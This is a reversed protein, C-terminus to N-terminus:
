ATVATLLHGCQVCQITPVVHRRARIYNARLTDSYYQETNFEYQSGDETWHINFGLTPLLNELNPNPDVYCVMAMTETWINALVAAVGKDATNRQASAVAIRELGLVAAISSLRAIVPDRSDRSGFRDLFEDCMCLNELAKLSLALTNPVQGSGAIVKLKAAVVDAIPTGTAHVTWPEKAGASVDTTLAAGTWTATDFVLDNARKEHTRHARGLAIEAAAQQANFWRAAVAAKTDDIKVELGREVTTYNAETYGLEARQYSGDPARADDQPELISERTFKKYTAAQQDVDLRPLVLDAIRRQAEANLDWERYVADRLDPRTVASSPSPM